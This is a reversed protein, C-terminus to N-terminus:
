KYLNLLKLIFSIIIILIVPFKRFTYMSSAIMKEPYAGAGAGPSSHFQKQTSAGRLDRGPFSSQM